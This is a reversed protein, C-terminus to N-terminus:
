RLSELGRCAGAPNVVILKKALLVGRINRKDTGEYVPIRSYGSALINAMTTDDLESTMPLSFVESMPIMVDVIRKRAMTLVGKVISLEDVTLSDVPASSKPSELSRIEDTM